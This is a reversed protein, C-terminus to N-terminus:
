VAKNWWLIHYCFLICCFCFKSQVSTVMLICVSTSPLASRVVFCNPLCVYRLSSTSSSRLCQWRRSLKRRYTLLYTHSYPLCTTQPRTALVDARRYIHALLQVRDGTQVIFLASHVPRTWKAMALVRRAYLVSNQRSQQRHSVAPRRFRM